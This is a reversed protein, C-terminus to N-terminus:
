TDTVSELREARAPESRSLQEIQPEVEGLDSVFSAGEDWGILNGPQLADEIIDHMPDRRQARRKTM